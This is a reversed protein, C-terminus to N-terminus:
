NGALETFNNLGAEWFLGICKKFWLQPDTRKYHSGQSPLFQQSTLGGLRQKLSSVWSSLAAKNWMQLGKKNIEPGCLISVAWPQQGTPPLPHPLSGGDVYITLFSLTWCFGRELAEAPSKQHSGTPASAPFKPLLIAPALPLTGPVASHHSHGEPSHPFWILSHRVPFHQPCVLKFLFGPSHCADDLEQSGSIFALSSPVHAPISILSGRVGCLTPFPRWRHVRQRHMGLFSAAATTSAM